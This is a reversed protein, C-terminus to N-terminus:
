KFLYWDEGIMAYLRDRYRRYYGLTVEPIKEGQERHWVCNKYQAMMTSATNYEAIDNRHTFTRKWYAKHHTSYKRSPRENGM